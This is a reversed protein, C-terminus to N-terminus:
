RRRRKSAIKASASFDLNHEKAFAQLARFFNDRDRTSIVAIQDATELAYPYGLGVVCEARVVEVVEDLLSQEYIWAPV